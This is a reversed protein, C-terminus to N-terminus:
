VKLAGLIVSELIWASSVIHRYTIYSHLDQKRLEYIKAIKYVYWLNLWM